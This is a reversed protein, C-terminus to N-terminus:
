QSRQARGILQRVMVTLRPKFRDGLSELQGMEGICFISCAYVTSLVAQNHFRVVLRAHDARSLQITAENGTSIAWIVM